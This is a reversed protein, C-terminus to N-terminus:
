LLSRVLSLNESIMSECGCDMFDLFDDDECRRRHNKNIEHTFQNSCEYIEHFEENSFLLDDWSLGNM